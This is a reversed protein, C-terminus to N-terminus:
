TPLPSAFAPFVVVVFIVNTGQVFPDCDLPPFGCHTQRKLSWSYTEHYRPILSTCQCKGGLNYRLTVIMVFVKGLLAMALM